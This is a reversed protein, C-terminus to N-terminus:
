LAHQLSILRLENLQREFMFNEAEAVECQLATPLARIEEVCSVEFCTRAWCTHHQLQWQAVSRFPAAHCVATGSRVYLM